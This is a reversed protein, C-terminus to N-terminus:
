IHFIQINRYSGISKIAHDSVNKLYNPRYTSIGNERIMKLGIMRSIRTDTAYAFFGDKKFTPYGNEIIHYSAMASPSLLIVENGKGKPMRLHDQQKLCYNLRINGYLIAEMAPSDEIYDYYEMSKM